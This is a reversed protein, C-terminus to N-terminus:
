LNEALFALMNGKNPKLQVRKATVIQGAKSFLRETPGSSAPIALYRRAYQSLLPFDNEHCKWWQLPDGDGDIPSELWEMKILWWVTITKLREVAAKAPQATAWASAVQIRLKRRDYVHKRFKVSCYNGLFFSILNDLEFKRYKWYAFFRIDINKFYRYKDFIDIYRM